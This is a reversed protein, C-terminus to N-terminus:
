AYKIVKKFFSSSVISRWLGIISRCLVRRLQSMFFGMHTKAYPHLVTIVYKASVIKLLLNLAANFARCPCLFLRGM